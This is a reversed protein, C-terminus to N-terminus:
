KMEINNPAKLKSTGEFDQFSGTVAAPCQKPTVIYRGVLRKYEMTKPTTANNKYEITLFNKFEVECTLGVKGIVECVGGPANLQVFRGRQTANRAGFVLQYECKVAEMTAFGVMEIDTTCGNVGGYSITGFKLEIPNVATVTGSFTATTCEISTTGGTAFKQAGIAESTVTVPNNVTAGEVFFVREGAPQQIAMGKASEPSPTDFKGEKGSKIGVLSCFGGASYTIGTVEDDIQSELSGKEIKVDNYFVEGLGKNETSSVEIVCGLSEIKCGGELTVRGEPSYDSKCSTVTAKSESEKGFKSKCEEYKVELKAETESGVKGSGSGHACRVSGGPVVFVAEGGKEEVTNGVGSFAEAAM